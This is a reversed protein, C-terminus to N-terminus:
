DRFRFVSLFEDLVPRPDYDSDDPHFVRVAYVHEGHFMTAEVGDSSSGCGYTNIRAQEGDVMRTESSELSCHSFAAELLRDYRELWVDREVDLPQSALLVWPESEGVKDAVDLGNSGESFATARSWVGPRERMQWSDDPFLLSYQYRESTFGSDPSDTPAPGAGVNGANMVAFSAIALVVVAATGIAYKTTTNMEPFRWGPWWAPRQPTAPLRARIADRTADPLPTMGEFDDLYDEILGIFDPERTM